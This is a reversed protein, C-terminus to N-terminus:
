DRSRFPRQPSQLAVAASQTRWKQRQQAAALLDPMGLDTWEEINAVWSKRQRRGRLAALAIATQRIIDQSSKWVRLDFSQAHGYEGCAANLDCM